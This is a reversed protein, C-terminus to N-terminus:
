IEKGQSVAAPPEVANKRGEMVARADDLRRLPMTAVAGIKVLDEFGYAHRASESASLKDAVCQALAHEGFRSIVELARVARESLEITFTTERAINVIRVPLEARKDM